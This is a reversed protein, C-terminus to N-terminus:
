ARPDPGRRVSARGFAAGQGDLLVGHTKTGGVDIGLCGTAPLTNM